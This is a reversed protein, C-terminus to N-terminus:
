PWRWTYRVWAYPSGQHGAELGLDGLWVGLSGAWPYSLTLHLSAEGLYLGAELRNVGGLRLLLDLVEGEEGVEGKFGLLAYPGSSVGLGLTYTAEQRFAYSGELRWVGYLGPQLGFTAPRSPTNGAAEVGWVERPTARYRLALRGFFGAEPFLPFAGQPRYGLRGEAALPGAGGELFLAGGLGGEGVEGQAGYALYGLPGLSLSGLYGLAGRGVQGKLYVEGEGLAFAAELAPTVGGPAGYLGAELRGQALALGLLFLLAM